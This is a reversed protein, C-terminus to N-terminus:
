LNEDIWQIRQEIWYKLTDVTEQYNNFKRFFPFGNDTELVPWKKFENESVKALKQSMTDISDLTAVFATRNEKWFDKVQKEYEPNKFLFRNWGYKRILWQDPVSKEDRSNGYGLDFDWVPGM